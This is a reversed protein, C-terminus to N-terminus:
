ISYMDNFLITLNKLVYKMSSMGLQNSYENICGLLIIRYDIPTGFVNAKFNDLLTNVIPSTM